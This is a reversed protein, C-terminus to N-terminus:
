LIDFIGSRRGSMAEVNARYNTARLLANNWPLLKESGFIGLAVAAFARNLRPSTEDELLTIPEDVLAPEKIQGLALAFSALSTVTNKRGRLLDILAPICEKDALMGLALSGHMQLMPRRVETQVISLIQETSSVDGMLGLSRMLYGSPEEDLKWVSVKKAIANAAKKYQMLGLAIAYGAAHLRNATTQFLHLLEEAVAPKVRDGAGIRRQQHSMIGLGLACWPKASRRLGRLAKLLFMQAKKGGIQGLAIACFYRTQVDRGSYMYWELADIVAVERPDGMQGLALAVSQHIWSGWTPMEKRLLDVLQKLLQAKDDGTRGGHSALALIAHSRLLATQKPDLMLNSLFRAIIKTLIKGEKSDDLRILRISTMAAVAIEDRLREADLFLKQVAKFIPKQVSIDETENAVLGLAYFAFSRLRVDIAKRSALKRGDPSDSALEILDSISDRRGLIGMALIALESLRGQKNVLFKKLDALFTAHGGIKALAIMCAPAIRYRNDDGLMAKKLGDVIRKKSKAGLKKGATRPPKYMGKNFEWWFQWQTLDSGLLAGAAAAKARLHPPVTEGPGRYAGGQARLTGSLSLAAAICIFLFRHSRESM